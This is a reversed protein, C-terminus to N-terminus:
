KGVGEDTSARATDIATDLEEPCGERISCFHHSRGKSSRDALAERLWRYRGADRANCNREAIARYFNQEWRSSLAAEEGREKALRDRDARLAEVERRLEDLASQAPAHPTLAGPRANHAAEVSAWDLRVTAGCQTVQAVIPLQEAM